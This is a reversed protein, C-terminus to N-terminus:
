YLAPIITLFIGAFDPHCFADPKTSLIQINLKQWGPYTKKQSNAQLTNKNHSIESINESNENIDLKSLHVKSPTSIVFVCFACPMTSNARTRGRKKSSTIPIIYKPM